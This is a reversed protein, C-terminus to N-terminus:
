VPRVSGRRRRHPCSEHNSLGRDDVDPDSESFYLSRFRRTDEVERSSFPTTHTGLTGADTETEVRSLGPVEATPTNVPVWVGLLRRHPVRSRSGDRRPDSSGVFSLTSLPGGEPRGGRKASGRGLGRVRTTSKRCGQPRVDQGVRPGGTSRDIIGQSELVPELCRCRGLFWWNVDPRRLFM